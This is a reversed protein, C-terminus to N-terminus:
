REDQTGPQFERDSREPDVRGVLAPFEKLIIAKARGIRRSVTSTSLGLKRAIAVQELGELRLRFVDQLEPGANQLADLLQQPSPLAVPEPSDGGVRDPLMSPDMLQERQPAKRYGEKIYNVAITHVYGLAQKANKFKDPTYVRGMRMYVEGAIERAEVKKHGRCASRLVKIFTAEPIGLDTLWDVGM